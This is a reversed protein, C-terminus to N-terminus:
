NTGWLEKTYWDYTNRSPDDEDSDSGDAHSDSTRRGDLSSLLTGFELRASNEILQYAESLLSFPERSLSLIDPFQWSHYTKGHSASILIGGRKKAFAQLFQLCPWCSDKSLGIEMIGSIRDRLALALTCECHVFAEAEDRAKVLNAVPIGTSAVNQLDKVTFLDLQPEIVPACRNVLSLPSDTPPM